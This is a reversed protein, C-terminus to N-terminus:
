LKLKNQIFWALVDASVEAFSREKARSAQDQMVALTEDYLHPVEDVFAKESNDPHTCVVYM